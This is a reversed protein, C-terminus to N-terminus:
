RHLSNVMNVLYIILKSKRSITEYVPAPMLTTGFSKKFADVGSHGGSPNFDFWSYGKDIADKIIESLLLNSPRLGFSSQQAAGHWYVIHKVAYFCLAGAIINSKHEALWLKISDSNLKFMIDFLKWDYYSTRKEGWREVSKQYITYYTKWDTISSAVRVTVGFRIAQKVAARNGKSWTQFIKDYDYVTNIARTHDYVLPLDIDNTGNCYPNLRWSLNPIKRAIYLTLLKAHTSTLEDSSIWGGFTGAPSSLYFKVLGKHEKHMSFPLLAKKEDSFTVLLPQPQMREDTYAKWIEAWERSHFYTAYECKSWMTDWESSSAPHIRVISINM